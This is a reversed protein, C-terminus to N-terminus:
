CSKFQIRDFGHRKGNGMVSLREGGRGGGNFGRWPFLPHERVRTVGIAGVNQSYSTTGSGTGWLGALATGLGEMWIGRNIAHKPPAPAGPPVPSVLM